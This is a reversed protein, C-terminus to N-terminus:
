SFILVYYELIENSNEYCKEIKQDKIRFNKHFLEPFIASAIVFLEYVTGNLPKHGAPAMFKHKSENPALLITKNKNKNIM